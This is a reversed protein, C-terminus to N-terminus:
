GHLTQLTWLTLSPDQIQPNHPCGTTLPDTMPERGQGERWAGPWLHNQFFPFKSLPEVVLAEHTVSLESADSSLETSGQVETPVGQGQTPGGGMDQSNRPGSGMQRQGNSQWGVGM